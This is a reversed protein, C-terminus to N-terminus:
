PHTAITKFTALQLMAEVWFKHPLKSTTFMNWTTEVLTCNTQESVGNQKPTYPVIYQKSIGHDECFKIFHSSTYEGGNDFKL